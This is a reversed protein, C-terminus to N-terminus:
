FKSALNPMCINSPFSFNVGNKMTNETPIKTCLFGITRNLKSKLLNFHLNLELNEELM